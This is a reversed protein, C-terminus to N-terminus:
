IWTSCYLNSEPSTPSYKSWWSPIAEWVYPTASIRNLSARFASIHYSDWPDPILLADKWVFSSPILIFTIWHQAGVLSLLFVIFIPKILPQPQDHSPFYRVIRIFSRFTLILFRLVLYSSIISLCPSLYLSSFLLLSAFKYINLLITISPVINARLCMCLAVYTESSWVVCFWFLWMQMLLFKLLNISSTPVLLPVSM